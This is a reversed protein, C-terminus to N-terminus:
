EARISHLGYHSAACINVFYAPDSGIESLGAISDMGPVVLHTSGSAVAARIDADRQDWQAARRAYFDVQEYNIAAMRLPYLSSIILLLAAIVVRWNPRKKLWGSVLTGLLWGSTCLSSILVFCAPFQAREEAYASEAYVSPSFCAAILIYAVIWAALLALWLFKPHRSSLAPKRVALLFPVAAAALAPVPLGRLTFYIFDLAFRFSM